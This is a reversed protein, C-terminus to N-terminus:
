GQESPLLGGGIIAAGGDVPLVHGTIKAAYPSLLFLVADAVAQKDARIDWPLPSARKWAGVLEEFGPIRSAATTAVPGASVANVRVRDRGHRRALARVVAELAAKHVGMWNYFPYVHATDFTLAVLSGGGAMAPVAYRAVTALSVASVEYSKKIDEVAPTHFEPGLCTAPNAYALSHVVGAVDPHRVFVAQVQEPQTVDCFEHVLGRKEEETLTRSADIYRKKLTENQITYVVRAGHREVTRGIAYAISDADLLGMVVYTKGAEIM